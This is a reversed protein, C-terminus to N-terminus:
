DDAGARELRGGALDPEGGGPEHRSGQGRDGVEDGVVPGSGPPSGPSPSRARTTERRTGRGAALLSRLHLRKDISVLAAAGLHHPIQFLELGPALRDDFLQGIDLELGQELDLLAEGSQVAAPLPGEGNRGWADGGAEQDRVEQAR